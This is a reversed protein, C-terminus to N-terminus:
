LPARLSKLSHPIGFQPDLFVRPYGLAGFLSDPIGQPIGEFIPEIGPILSQLGWDWNVWISPSKCEGLITFM